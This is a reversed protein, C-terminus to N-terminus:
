PLWYTRWDSLKSLMFLLDKPLEYRLYDAFYTKSTYVVKCVAWRMLQQSHFQESRNPIVQPSLV